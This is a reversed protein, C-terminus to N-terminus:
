YGLDNRARLFVDNFKAVDLLTLEFLGDRLIEVYEVLEPHDGETRESNILLGFDVVCLLVCEDGDDNFYTLKLIPVPSGHHLDMKYTVGNYDVTRDEFRLFHYYNNYYFDAIEGVSQFHHM